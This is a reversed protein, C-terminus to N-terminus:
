SNSNFIQYIQYIQVETYLLGKFLCPFRKSFAEYDPNHVLDLHGRLVGLYRMNVGSSHM